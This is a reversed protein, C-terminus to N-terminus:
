SCKSIKWLVEKNGLVWVLYSVVAQLEPGTGPSGFGEEPWQPCGICTAYVWVSVCVFVYM